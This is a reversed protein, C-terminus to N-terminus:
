PLRFQKFATALSRGASWVKLISQNEEKQYIRLLVNNNKGMKEVVSIECVSYKSKIVRNLM